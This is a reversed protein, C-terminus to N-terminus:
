STVFIKTVTEIISILKHFLSTTMGSNPKTDNAQVRPYYFCGTREIRILIPNLEGKIIKFKDIVEESFEQWIKNNERLRNRMIEENGIPYKLEYKRLIMLIYIEHLSLDDLIKLYSEYEDTNSITSHDLTNNLLRAFYKIKEYRNTNLVAKVTSFYCHLFDSNRIVDETLEIKGTSLEDFFTKLRNRRM